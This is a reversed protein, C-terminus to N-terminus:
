RWYEIKEEEEQAALRKDGGVAYDIVSKAIGLEFATM